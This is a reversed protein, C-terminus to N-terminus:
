LRRQKRLAWGGLTAAGVVLLLLLVALVRSTGTDAAQSSVNGGRGAPRSPGSRGPPVGAGPQAHRSYHRKRHRSPAPSASRARVRRGRRASVGGARARQRRTSSGHTRPKEAGIISRCDSYEAVDAPMNRLADRLQTTTYKKALTGDDLCDRLVADGGAQATSMGAGLLFLIMSLTLLPRM